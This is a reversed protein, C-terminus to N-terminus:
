NEPDDKGAIHFVNESEDRFLRIMERCLNAAENLWRADFTAHYLDLLGNALFAYDDVYGLIGAQGARYRHM